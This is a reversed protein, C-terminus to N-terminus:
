SSEKNMELLAGLGSLTLYFDFTEETEKKLDLFGFIYLNEIEEPLFGFIYLNEIEEPLASFWVPGEAFFDLLIRMEVESM